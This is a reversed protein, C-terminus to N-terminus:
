REEWLGPKREGERGGGEGLSPYSERVWGEDRGKEEKREGKGGGKHHIVGVM